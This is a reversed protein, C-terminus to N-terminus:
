ELCERFDCFENSIKSREKLIKSIKAFIRDEQHTISLNSCFNVFKKQENERIETLLFKRHFGKKVGRTRRTLTIKKYFINRSVFTNKELFYVPIVVFHLIESFKRSIRSNLIIVLWIKKSCSLPQLHLKM